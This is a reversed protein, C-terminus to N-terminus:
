IATCEATTCFHKGFRLPSKKKGRQREVRDKIQKKSAM